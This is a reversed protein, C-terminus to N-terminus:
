KETWLPLNKAIFGEKGNITEANQLEGQTGMLKTNNYQEAMLRRGGGIMFNDINQRRQRRRVFVVTNYIVITFGLAFLVGTFIQSRIFKVLKQNAGKINSVAVLVLIPAIVVLYFINIGLSM